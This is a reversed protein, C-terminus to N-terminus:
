RLDCVLDSFEIVSTTRENDVDDEEDDDGDDDYGGGGGNVQRLHQLVTLHRRVTLCTDCYCSERTKNRTHTRDLSSTWGRRHM